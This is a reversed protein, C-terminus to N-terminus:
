ESLCLDLLHDLYPSGVLDSFGLVDRSQLLTPGGGPVVSGLIELTEFNKDPSGCAAVIPLRPVRLQERLLNLFHLEGAKWGIVLIRDVDPLSAKLASFHEPPCEFIAKREIPIAIAPVRYFTALAEQSADVPTWVPDAIGLLGANLITEEVTGSFGTPVQTVVRVWEISGHLKFLRFRRATYDGSVEFRLGLEDGCASEFL